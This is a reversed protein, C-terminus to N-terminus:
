NALGKVVFMQSGEKRSNPDTSAKPDTFASGDTPEWGHNQTIMIFTDEVGITESIDIMGTIEWTSTANGIGNSAAALQDCELVTKIEGTNLNYQYLRAYHAKDDTDPYGNPDEQIYAYNQTVVINDPSHFEKAKGDLKDGDLVCSITAKTPDDASLVVKYVRGYLTGKGM